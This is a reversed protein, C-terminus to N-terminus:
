SLLKQIPLVMQDIDGAGATIFVSDNELEVKHAEIWSLIDEKSTLLTSDSKMKEQIITSTVGEIPLERAPYIPLILVQNAIDLAEAFEIAFDKTRSFLHPQFALVLKKNPFLHRVGTLLAKLEEPHHAYDDIYVFSKNRVLYQFRRKVGMFNAIAAKIKPVPIELELAVAIAVLSNEVNHLGGMPLHIASIRYIKSCFFDCDYSHIVQLCVLSLLCGRNIPGTQEPIADPRGTAVHSSCFADKTSTYDVQM